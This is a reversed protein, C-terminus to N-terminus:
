DEWIRDIWLEPWRPAVLLISYAVVWVPRSGIVQLYARPNEVAAYSILVAYTLMGIIMWCLALAILGPVVNVGGLAAFAFIVAHAVLVGAVFGKRFSNNVM